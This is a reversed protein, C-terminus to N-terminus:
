ASVDSQVTCRLTLNGNDERHLVGGVEEAAATPDVGLAEAVVGRCRALVDDETPTALVLMWWNVDRAVHPESCRVDPVVGEPPVGNATQTYCRLVLDADVTKTIDSLPVAISVPVFAAETEVVALDCRVWREGADWQEDTPLFAVTLVGYLGQRDAAGVYRRVADAPCATTAVRGREALAPRTAKDFPGAVVGIFYTETTHEADCPVPPATDSWVLFHETRDLAHCAGISPPGSTGAPVGTACGTLGVMVATSAALLWAGTTTRM